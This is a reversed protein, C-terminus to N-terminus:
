HLDERGKTTLEVGIVKDYNELDETNSILNDFFDETGIIFGQMEEQESNFFVHMGIEEAYEFLAKLIQEQTKM